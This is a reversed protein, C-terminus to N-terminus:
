GDISLWVQDLALDCIATVALSGLILPVDARSVVELDHLAEFVSVMAGGLGGEGRVVRDESPAVAVHFVIGVPLM